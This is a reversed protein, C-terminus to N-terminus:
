PTSHRPLIARAQEDIEGAVGAARLEQRIADCLRIQGTDGPFGDRVGAAVKEAYGCLAALARHHENGADYRPIPVARWIHHLFDRDSKRSDQYAKQLCDANLIATLYAAEDTTKSILWYTQHSVIRDPLVRAARLTQGSSNYVVKTALEGANDARIQPVLARQHNIRDWLTQPTNGGLGRNAQYATDAWSWYSDSDRKGDLDGKATLPIIIKALEGRTAFCLLDSSYIAESIYREPVSGASGNFQTWPEHRADDTVFSVSQKKKSTIQAIKVLSYPFLTAGTRFDPKGGTFYASQEAPFSPPKDVIEANDLAAALDDSRHVKRGSRNVMTTQAPSGASATDQILACSKAGTFPADKLEGFDLFETNWQRSEQRVREWNSGKIAANNLAWAARNDANARLYQERCRVVFLGGIDFGTNAKGGPWLGLESTLRELERKRSEVQINSMRVWPPNALIRDVKREKLAAPSVSNFIYWAWVSNGEERIVEKLTDYTSALTQRDTELLGDLTDAPLPEGLNAAAVFRMVNPGFGPRAAWQTPIRLYRGARSELTHYSLGANNALEMGRHTYILADGQYIQLADSGGSPAAPLARMLTARSIEAAIPHIDIGNVMRAIFDAQEVPTAGARQLAASNGIRLAAHYLFTGSGCAPDLVGVGSPADGSRLYRKVAREIWAEDIIRDALMGALWDPTYYEGFAKRQARPILDQYIARLVDRTRPRWDYTDATRFVERTWSVGAAYTPGSENRNQPWSAFGEAMVSAPDEPREWESMTAIVARAITVLLTHSIFLETEEDPNEPACGSGRLMDLWLERKTQTAPEDQLAAYLRRLPALHPEFIDTPNAPIAPRAVADDTFIQYLAEHVSGTEQTRAYIDAVLEPATRQPMDRNIVIRRLEKRDGSQIPWVFELRDNPGNSFVLLCDDGTHDGVADVAARADGQNVRIKGSDAFAIYAVAIGDRGAIRHAQGPLNANAPLPIVGNAPEFDLTEAFLTRLFDARGGADGDAFIRAIAAAVRDADTTTSTVTIGDKALDPPESVYQGDEWGRLDDRLEQLVSKAADLKAKRLVPSEDPISEADGSEMREVLRSFTREREQTVQYQSENAIM